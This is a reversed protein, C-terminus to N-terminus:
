ALVSPALVPPPHSWRVSGVGSAVTASEGSGGRCRSWRTTSDAFEVRGIGLEEHVSPLLRESGCRACFLLAADILGARQARRRCAHVPPVLRGATSPLSGPM